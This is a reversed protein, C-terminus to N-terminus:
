AGVRRGLVLLRQWWPMVSPRAGIPGFPRVFPCGHAVQEAHIGPLEAGGAPLVSARSRAPGWRGLRGLAGLAASKGRRDDLGRLIPHGIGELTRCTVFRCSNATQSPLVWRIPLPVWGSRRRGTTTARGSPRTPLTSSCPPPSRTHTTKM